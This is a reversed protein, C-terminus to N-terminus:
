YNIIGRSMVIATVASAALASALAHRRQTLNVKRHWRRWTKLPAFM